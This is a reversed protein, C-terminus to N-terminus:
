ETRGDTHEHQLGHELLWQDMVRNAAEFAARGEALLRRGEDITRAQNMRLRLAGISQLGPSRARVYATFAQQQALAMPARLADARQQTAAALAVVAEADSMLAQRAQAEEPSLTIPEQAV